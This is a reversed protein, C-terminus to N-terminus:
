GLLRKAIAGVLLLFFSAWVLVALLSRSGSVGGLTRGMWPLYGVFLLAVGAIMVSRAPDAPVIPGEPAVAFLLATAGLLLGFGIGLVITGIGRLREDAGLLGIGYVILLGTVFPTDLVLFAVIALRVLDVSGPAPHYGAVSLGVATGLSVFTGAAVLALLRVFPRSRLSSQVPDIGQAVRGVQRQEWEARRRWAALVFFPLGIVLGLVFAGDVLVVGANAAVAGSIAFASTAILTASWIEVFGGVGRIPGDGRRAIRRLVRPAANWELFASGDLLHDHRLWAYGYLLLGLVLGYWPAAAQTPTM